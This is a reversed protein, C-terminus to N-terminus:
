GLLSLPDFLYFHGAIPSAVIAEELRVVYAGITALLSGEGSGLAALQHVGIGLGLVIALAVLFFVTGMISGSFVNLFRVRNVRKFILNVLVSLLVIVVFFALFLILSAFTYGLITSAGNGLRAFGGALKHAFSALAPVSLVLYLSGFVAFFTLVITFALWLFRGFGLRYGGKLAFLLFTVLSLDLLYAGVMDWIATNYVVSFMGQGDSLAHLTWLVFGGFAALPVVWNLIVTVVGLIRDFVRFFMHARKKKRWMASRIIAGVGLVLATVGFVTVASIVFGKTGEPLAIFKAVLLCIGFVIPIQWGVWSVRSFKKIVGYLFLGVVLVGGVIIASLMPTSLALTALQLMKVEKPSNGM